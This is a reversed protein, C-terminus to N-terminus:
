DSDKGRLAELEDNFDDLLENDAADAPKEIKFKQMEKERLEQNEKKM